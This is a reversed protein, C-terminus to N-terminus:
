PAINRLTTTGQVSLYLKKDTPTTATTSSLPFYYGDSGLAVSSSTSEVLTAYRVSVVSTSTPIANYTVYADAARDANIDVGYQFQIQNVGSLLSTAAGGNVACQIDGTSSRQMRVTIPASSPILNGQCDRETAAARQYRFCVGQGDTTPKIVDGAAFAPCGTVTTAPFAVVMADQPQQRYGAKYLQQEFMLQAFRSTEQNASQNQQYAYNRKNDIFIQTIGLILFSSIAMAILLEIMSLGAQLSPSRKM